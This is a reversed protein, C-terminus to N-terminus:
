LYLAGEASVGPKSITNPNADVSDNAIARLSLKQPVGSPLPSGGASSISSVTAHPRYSSVVTTPDSLVSHSPNMAQSDVPADQMGDKPVTSDNLLVKDTKLQALLAFDIIVGILLLLCCAAPVIWMAWSLRTERIVHLRPLFYAHTIM